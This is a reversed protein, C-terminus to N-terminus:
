CIPQPAEAVFSPFPPINHPHSYYTSPSNKRTLSLNLIDMGTNSTSVIILAFSVILLSLVAFAAIILASM